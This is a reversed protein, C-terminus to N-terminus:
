GIGNWERAFALQRDTVSILRDEFWASLKHMKRYYCFRSLRDFAARAPWLAWYKVLAM